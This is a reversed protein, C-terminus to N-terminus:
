SVLFAIFVTPFCNQTFRSPYIHIHVCSPVFWVISERKIQIFISSSSAICHTTNEKKDSNFSPFFSLLLSKLLKEFSIFLCNKPKRSNKLQFVQFICILTKVRVLFNHKIQFIKIFHFYCIM